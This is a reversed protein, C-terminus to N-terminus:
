AHYCVSHKIHKAEPMSACMIDKLEHDTSRRAPKVAPTEAVCECSKYIDDQKVHRVGAMSASM